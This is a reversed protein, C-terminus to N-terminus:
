DVVGRLWRFNAVDHGFPPSNNAAATEHDASVVTTASAALQLPTSVPQVQGRRDEPAGTEEYPRSRLAAGDREFPSNFEDNNDFTKPNPGFADDGPLS